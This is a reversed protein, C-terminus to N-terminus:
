KYIFLDIVADSGGSAALNNTLNDEYANVTHLSETVAQEDSTTLGGSGGRYYTPFVM